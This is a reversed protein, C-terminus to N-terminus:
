YFQRSIYTLIEVFKETPLLTITKLLSQFTNYSKRVSTM